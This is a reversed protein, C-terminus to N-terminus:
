LLQLPLVVVFTFLTSACCLLVLPTFLSLYFFLFILLLIVSFVYYGSNHIIHLQHLCHFCIFPVKRVPKRKLKTLLKDLLHLPLSSSKNARKYMKVTKALWIQLTLKQTSSSCTCGIEPSLCVLLLIKTIM